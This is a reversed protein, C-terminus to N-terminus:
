VGCMIRSKEAFSKLLKLKRSIYRVILASASVTRLFDILPVNLIESTKYGTINEFSENVWQVIGKENTIIIANITEQAILSLRKLELEVRKKETIDQTAGILRLADGNENRIIYGRDTINAYAGDARRIRYELEFRDTDRKALFASMESNNAEKDEPHIRNWIADPHNYEDGNVNGILKDWGAKSRFIKNNVLDWDWVMDNTAKAVLHYRENSIRLSESIRKREISYLITKTLINEDLDGKLLFDQAGKNIADLAISTDKIGTLIVIPTEGSYQQLAIFSEIGSSDPLSLDLFIIDTKQKKLFTFATELTQAHEIAGIKIGTQSLTEQLLVADGMNDEIILMQIPISNIEIVDNHFTTDLM